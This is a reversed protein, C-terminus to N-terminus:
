RKVQWIRVLGSHASSEWARELCSPIGHKFCAPPASVFEVLHTVKTKQLREAFDIEEPTSWLEVIENMREAESSAEMVNPSHAYEIYTARGSLSGCIAFSQLESLAKTQQLPDDVPLNLQPRFPMLVVSERPTQDRLFRMASWEDPTLAFGDDSCWQELLSPSRVLQYSVALLLIVAAVWWCHEKNWSKSTIIQSGAMGLMLPLIPFIYWCIQPLMQGAVSYSDEAMSRLFMGGLLSGVVLWAVTISFLTWHTQSSRTRTYAMVAVALPLGVIQFLVYGLICVIHWTWMACGLPLTNVIGFFIQKAAPWDTWWWQMVPNPDEPSGPWTLANYGIQLNTTGPRYNSQKMELLLAAAIVVATAIGVLVRWDRTRWALWLGVLAFVPALPLFTQARFRLLAGTMVGLLLMLHWIENRSATPIRESPNDGLSPQRIMRDIVAIGLLIGFFVVMGSYLQPSTIVTPELLSTAHPYVTFYQYNIRSQILPPFPISFIFLLSVALYGIATSGALSRVLFHIVLCILVTIVVFSWVTQVRLMDTQRGYGALLMTNIHPMLHYPRGPKGAQCAQQRPPTHRQLEYEIATHYTQDPYLRYHHMGDAPSIEFATRYRTTILLTAVILAVLGWDCQWRRWQRFQAGIRQRWLVLCVIVSACQAVPFLWDMGLVSFGFFALPTAAYSGTLSMALREGRDPLARALAMFLLAAFPGWLCVAGLLM